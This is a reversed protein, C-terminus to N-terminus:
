RTADKNFLQPRGVAGSVRARQAGARHLYNLYITYHDHVNQLAFTIETTKSRCWSYSVQTVKVSLLTM